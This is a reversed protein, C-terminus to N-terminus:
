CILSNYSILGAFFLLVTVLAKYVIKLIVDECQVFHPQKLLPTIFKSKWQLVIGNVTMKPQRTQNM